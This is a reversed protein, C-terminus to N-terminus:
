LSKLQSAPHIRVARWTPYLAAALASLIALVVASLVMVWDMGLLRDIWDLDAYLVHIGTLGLRALAIGIIGGALGIMGAETVYQGFIARRSAGLARRLSIDGSRRIVKALLLGITNLLCVILFMVALVLLIQVSDDVVQEKTLRENVNYLRNNLPREFRGVAKQSETYADLFAKYESWEEQSELEVWMQMWVCESNLFGQWRGDGFPKWCNTNGWGSIEKDIAVTFPIFVEETDNFDGTTLDYFKPVPNWEDMVGVVRYSEGNMVLRRGVSDAGGFVRDNTRRALVAVQEASQDAAADWGSGYLFPVDFMAFFDATSARGAVQFPRAGEDEPQIVRGIQYSVVQRGARGAALLATADMYTVQDPPEGNDDVPENPDWSDLQVYYLQDSKEPIPDSSMVYYINVVTMCAGIGIAIAAIMLASLMPNKRISLSGLKLFYRFM